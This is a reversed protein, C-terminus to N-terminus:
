TVIRGGLVEVTNELISHALSRLLAYVNHEYRVSLVNYKQQLSCNFFATCCHNGFRPGRVDVPEALKNSPSGM